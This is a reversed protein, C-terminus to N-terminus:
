CFGFKKWIPNGDPRNYRSREGRAIADLRLIDSIDKESLASFQEKQEETIWAPLSSHLGNKAIIVAAESQIFAAKDMKQRETTEEDRHV